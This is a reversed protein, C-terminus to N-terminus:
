LRPAFFSNRKNGAFFVPTSILRSFSFLKLYSHSLVVRRQPSELKACVSITYDPKLDSFLAFVNAESNLTPVMILMECLRVCLNNVAEESKLGYYKTGIYFALLMKQCVYKKVSKCNM